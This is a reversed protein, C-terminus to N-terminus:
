YRRSIIKTMSFNDTSVDFNVIKRADNNGGFTTAM